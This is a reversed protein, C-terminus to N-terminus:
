PRVPAIQRSDWLRGRATRCSPMATPRPLCHARRAAPSWSTKRRSGHRRSGDTSSWLTLRTPMTSLSANRPMAFASACCNAMKEPMPDPKASLPSTDACPRPRASDSAFTADGYLFSVFEELATVVDSVAAFEKRLGRRGPRFPCAKAAKTSKRSRASSTGAVDEWYDILMETRVQDYAELSHAPVISASRNLAALFAPSQVVPGLASVLGSTCFEVWADALVAIEASALPTGQPDFVERDRRAFASRAQAKLSEDALCLAAGPASTILRAAVEAESYADAALEVDALRVPLAKEDWDKAAPTGWADFTVEPAGPRRRPHHHAHGNGRSPKFILRHLRSLDAVNGIVLHDIGPPPAAEAIAALRAENPDPNRLHDLYSRYLTAVSEWRETDNPLLEALNESLPTLAARGTVLM